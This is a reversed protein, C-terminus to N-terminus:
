LIVISVLFLSLSSVLLILAVTKLIISDNTDKVIANMSLIQKFVVLLFITLMLSATLFSGKALLLVLNTGLINFADM